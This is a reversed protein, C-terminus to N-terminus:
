SKGNIQQNKAHEDGSYNKSAELCLSKVIMEDLDLVHCPSRKPPTNNASIWRWAKWGIAVDWKVQTKIKWEM